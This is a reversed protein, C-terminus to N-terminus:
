FAIRFTTGGNRDLEIKGRHKYEVLDVIMRLGLSPSNRFDLDGPLGVGNDSFIIEIKGEVTCRFAMKIEGKKSRPFAYKLSNTLLENIILGWSIATDVGISIDEIDTKLDIRRTSVRYSKFLENTLNEIYDGFKVSSLDDSGYLKEHVLAMAKIRNQSEELMEIYKKDNIYSSQLRLLSIIVQMNNKVRHHIEKLLVEKEKLSARIREDAQKRETIDTILGDYSVLRGQEDRRPVPTNRVWRISGDKHIIRHDLPPVSEGSLVREAQTTVADRDEEHIMRHWLYPETEYEESTYGTVAICGPGHSTSVAHGNEVKVTYIYDTVAGVLRKYREESEKLAEDMQKRKIQLAELDDIQRRLEEQETLLQEKTKDKDEMKHKRRRVTM